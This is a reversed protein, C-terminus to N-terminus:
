NLRGKRMAKAVEVDLEQSKAVTRADLTGYEDICAELEQRLKELIKRAEKPINAYDSPMIYYQPLIKNKETYFNKIFAKQRM